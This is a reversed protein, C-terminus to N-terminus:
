YIPYKTEDYKPVNKLFYHVNEDLKKIGEKFCDQLNIVMIQTSGFKEIMLLKKKMLHNKFSSLDYQTNKDLHHYRLPAIVSNTIKRNNKVVPTLFIKNYLYPVGYRFEIYRILTTADFDCGLYLIEPNLQFLNDWASGEGFATANEQDCIVRSNKGVAALSFIPNLSRNSLSHLAIYNSFSGLSKSVKTKKIDFNINKLGYNYNSAPVVVTGSSGIISFFIELIKEPYDSIDVEKMKGLHILSSHCLINSGSTLGLNLLVKKLESENYEYM